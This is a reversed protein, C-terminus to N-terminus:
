FCLHPVTVKGEGEWIGFCVNMAYWKAINFGFREFNDWNKQINGSHMQKPFVHIYACTIIM